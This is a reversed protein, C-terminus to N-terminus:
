AALAVAATANRARLGRLHVIALRTTVELIAMAVLALPWATASIQHAISFDRVAPGAGHSVAFAFVLRSGIGASLLFGAVWGVRAYANGDGDSRVYTAFGSLIGLTLGVFALLGAFLLDNGSTPITHIYQSAVFGVAALPGLLSRRDLKREGVQRLVVFVFLLANIIYDSTTMGGIIPGCLGGTM